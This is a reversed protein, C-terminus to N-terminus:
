RQEQVVYLTNGDPDRFTFMPVPYELIEADADIGRARLEAHDAAADATALRIGSDVGVRGDEGPRVLAISTTAGHPAVEVWREGQGYSSDMRIEFGLSGVYFEIARDQDSVPVAVTRVDNINTTTHTSPM